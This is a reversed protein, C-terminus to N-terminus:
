FYNIFGFHIKAKQLAITNNQQKGVAYFLSFVGAGTEFNLGFGFGFPTDSLAPKTIANKYWAGNWFLIVNSNQKLLYRLEANIIGYSSAFISQEDFGKLTNLGGIRFLESFFLSQTAIHAANIETRYVWKKALPIFYDAKIFCRFQTSKLHMTDYINKYSGDTQLFTLNNITQNRQITKLGVAANAEIAFGKSPNLYYDYRIMKLGLGYLANLLDNTIPLARSQLIAITDVTLLTTKQLKYFVKVYDNGVFRYQLGFDNKVDLYTSDFKLLNLEYDLGVNTKFLYPWQFRTKLDQSQALFSRYALEFTKGTGFLNQLNLNAEGTVLLKNSNNNSEPAVGIIGSFHSSKKNTLYLVPKATTSVFYVTTPKVIQLYPLQSLRSDANKLLLENYLADKKIGLYKAIFWGKLNADGIIEITDFKIEDNLKLNLKAAVQQSDATISDLYVQAFPYGNQELYNLLRETQQKYQTFSFQKNLFLDARWGCAKLLDSNVNGNLLKIWKYSQNPNLHVKCISDVFIISDVSANLYSREGLANLMKLVHANIENSDNTIGIAIPVSAALKKIGADAQNNIVFILKFVHQAQLASFHLGAIILLIKFYRQPM